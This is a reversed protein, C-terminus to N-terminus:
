ALYYKRKKLIVISAMLTISTSVLMALTIRELYGFDKLSLILIFFFGNILALYLKISNKNERSYYTELYSTICWIYTYITIALVIFVVNGFEYDYYVLYGIIMALVAFTSATLLLLYKFLIGKQIEKEHGSVFMEKIMFALVSAHTLQILMSFRQTLSLLTGDDLSMNDLAHIKGYNAIYMMIFVQIISPWSFLLSQKITPSIQLKKYVRSWKLIVDRAVKIFYVICFLIQGIFILWLEFQLGLFVYIFLFLLSLVNAVITVYLGKHPKNILRYYSALFSFTMVFVARSVIYIIYDDIKFIFYHVVILAIGVICLAFYVLHFLRTIDNIVKKKDQANRYLYFFYGSLGFDLFPIVVITISYIYEISLYVTQDKFLQLVLLPLLFIIAKDFYSLAMFSFLSKNKHFQQIIRKM